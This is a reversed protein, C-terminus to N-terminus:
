SAGATSSADPRNWYGLMTIPDDAASAIQGAEGVAVETLEADLIAVRRGPVIRGM